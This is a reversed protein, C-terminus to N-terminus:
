DSRESMRQRLDCMVSEIVEYVRDAIIEQAQNTYHCLDIYMGDQHEFLDMLNIYDERNSALLRFNVAGNIRREQEYLSKEHLSMHEMTINMPQLFCFFQAGDFESILKLMKENRIWFNYLSEGSPLGSCYQDYSKVWSIIREPNFQNESDKYYLNNVGSMSIVIHPKLVNGDRLYRLLEDVIDNAAHAGNYIVTKMGNKNLKNYLKSVWNEVYFEESSTSGGLVLIKIRMGDEKGYVRWGPKGYTYRISEGVLPDRYEQLINRFRESDRTHWQFCTYNASELSFGALEVNERAQIIDEPFEECILIFKDDMGDYALEYISGIDQSDDPREHVYGSLSMGCYELFNNIFDAMANRRSYLYIKKDTKIASDLYQLPNAVGGSTGIILYEFDVYVQGSFSNLTELIEGRNQCTSVSVVVACDVYESLETAEVVKKGKYQMVNNRKTVCYMEESLGERNLVVHLQEAGNGIGYVIIRSQTLGSNIGSVEKWYLATGEPLSNVKNNSVGDAVIILYNDITKVQQLSVVPHNLYMQGVYEDQESVFGQTNIGGFTIRMFLALSDRNINWIFIKKSQYEKRLTYLVNIM